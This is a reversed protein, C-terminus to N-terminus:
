PTLWIDCQEKFHYFEKLRHAQARIFGGADEPDFGGQIDMSVLTENYLSPKGHRGLVFVNGKYLQLQVTGTVYRQSYLISNRVFDCEPSFWLGNYVYDSMKDTLYSKIRLVERDLMFIELDQHAKYLITAGPSEYIGRSKLGISRNEVIDIRGIGHLGGIKNLYQIIELPITFVDKSKLDKVSSPYGQTFNLEIEMPELPSTLPDNTMKYLGKPASTAPNELLGSEYSVHLLNADTSWPEKLTASVPIGNEEAYKLM